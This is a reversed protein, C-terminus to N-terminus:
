CEKERLMALLGLLAAEPGQKAAGTRFIFGHDTRSIAAKATWRKRVCYLTLMIDSANFKLKYAARKRIETLVRLLDFNRIDPYDERALM